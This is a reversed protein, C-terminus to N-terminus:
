NKSTERDNILLLPNDVEFDNEILYLLIKDKTNNPVSPADSSSGLLNLVLPLGLDYRETM